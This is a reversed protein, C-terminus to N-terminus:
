HLDSYLTRDKSIPFKTLKRKLPIDCRREKDMGYETYVRWRGEVAELSCVLMYESCYCLLDREM